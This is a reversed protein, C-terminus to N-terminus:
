YEGDALLDGKARTSLAHWTSANMFESCFRVSGDGMLVNGGSPHDSFMEDVHGLGASPPHIVPPNEYPSPGSHVNVQAAAYDCAVLSYEPRPCTVAGPMIGVWTSDSHSPTQEGVFVTQSLGDRVDAERTRSNRYLPGDALGSLDALPVGWVDLAGANAVFNARAFEALVAGSGDLVEYTLTEQPATPCLYIPLSTRAAAANQPAWCNASWDISAHLNGQEMHPLILALFTWGPGADGTVPDPAGAIPSGGPVSLYAPPFRRHNIHYQSLGLGVQRLNSACNGRRASERAAQVAPMLLGILVGIIAIVVLLEILTFGRRRSFRLPM